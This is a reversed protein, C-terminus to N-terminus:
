QVGAPWSFNRKPRIWDIPKVRGVGVSLRCKIQTSGFKLKTRTVFLEVNPGPRPRKCTGVASRSLYSLVTRVERGKIKWSWTRRIKRRTEIRACGRWWSMKKPFQYLPRPIFNTRVLEKRHLIRFSALTQDIVQHIRLKLFVDVRHPLVLRRFSFLVELVWFYWSKKWIEM